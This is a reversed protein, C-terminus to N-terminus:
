RQRRGPSPGLCTKAISHNLLGREDDADIIEPVSMSTMIGFVELRASFLVNEAQVGDLRADSIILM